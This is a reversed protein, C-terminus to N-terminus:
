DLFMMRLWGCLDRGVQAYRGSAILFFSSLIPTIILVCLILALKHDRTVPHAKDPM